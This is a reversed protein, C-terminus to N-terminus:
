ECRARGWVRAEDGDGREERGFLVLDEEDVREAQEVRGRAGRGCRALQAALPDLGVRPPVRRAALEGRVLRRQPLLAVKVADDSPVALRKDPSSLPPVLCPWPGRECRREVLDVRRGAGVGERKKRRRWRQAAEEEEEM